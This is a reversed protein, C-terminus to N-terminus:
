RIFVHVSEVVASGFVGLGGEIGEEVRVGEEGWIGKWYYDFYNTDVAAVILIGPATMNTVWFFPFSITSDSTTDQSEMWEVYEDEMSDRVGIMVHYGKANKSKKVIIQELEESYLTDGVEPDLIKFGGPVSTHGDVTDYGQASVFLFYNQLTDIDISDTTLYIGSTDDRAILTDSFNDGSLIVTVDELYRDSTEHMRFSREVRVWQEIADTRLLCFVNLEPDYEESPPKECGWFIISIIVFFIIKKM